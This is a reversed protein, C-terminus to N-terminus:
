GLELKDENILEETFNSGFIEKLDGHWHGFLFISSNLIAAWGLKIWSSHWKGLFPSPKPPLTQNGSLWYVSWLITDCLGAKCILDQTEWGGM